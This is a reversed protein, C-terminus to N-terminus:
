NLLMEVGLNMLGGGGGGGGMIEQDTASLAKIIITLHIPLYQCVM